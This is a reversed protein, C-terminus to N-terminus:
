PIKRVRKAKYPVWTDRAQLLRDAIIRLVLPNSGMGLHSAAVCINESMEGELQKAGHWHVVGDTRSYIVSNPVPPPVRMGDVKKQVEPELEGNLLEYIPGALTVHKTGTIPSGLSIVNRVMEPKARAIERAFVGGLSWGVLSVKQGSEIFIREVMAQMETDLTESYRLNRGFSWDYVDYGLNALFRRLPRTSFSSTLFGPFVIVPHGDGKPMNRLWLGSGYHAALEFMWRSEMGMKLLKMSRSYRIPFEVSSTNNKPM